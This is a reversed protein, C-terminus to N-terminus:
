RGSQKTLWMDLFGPKYAESVPVSEGNALLLTNKDESLSKLEVAQDLRVICTRHVRCFQGAALSKELQVMSGRHLHCGDKHHIEVYNGNSGFWFVDELHIVRISSASRIVLRELPRSEVFAQLANHSAQQNEIACQARKLCHEFRENDFPKLLYDLAYLEFAEIAYNDFATVFVIHVQPYDAVLRKAADLGSTGPMQIDLFVVAPKRLAVQEHLEGASGLEGVIQWQSFPSLADRINLRAMPEDDVILCPIHM